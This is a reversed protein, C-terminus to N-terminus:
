LLSNLLAIMESKTVGIKKAIEFVEKIGAENPNSDELSSDLPIRFNYPDKLYYDVSDKVLNPFLEKPHNKKNIQKDKTIM